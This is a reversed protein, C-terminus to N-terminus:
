SIMDYQQGKALVSRGWEELMRGQSDLGIVMVTLAVTDMLAVARHSHKNEIM